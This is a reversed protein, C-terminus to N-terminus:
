EAAEAKPEDSVADAIQELLEAAGPANHHWLQEALNLILNVLTTRTWKPDRDILQTLLSASVMLVGAIQHDALEPVASRLETIGTDILPRLYQPIPGDGRRARVMEILTEFASEGDLGTPEFRPPEYPHESKLPAPIATKPSM